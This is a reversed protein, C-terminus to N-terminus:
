GGGGTQLFIRATLTTECGEFETITIEYEVDIYSPPAVVDVVLDFTTPGTKVVAAPVPPNHDSHSFDYITIMTATLDAGPNFGTVVISEIHQYPPGDIVFDDVLIDEAALTCPPLPVETDPIGCCVGCTYKGVLYQTQFCEQAPEQMEDNGAVNELMAKFLSRTKGYHAISKNITLARIQALYLSTLRGLKESPEFDVISSPLVMYGLIIDDEPTRLRCDIVRYAAKRCNKDYVRLARDYDNPIPYIYEVPCVGETVGLTEDDARLRVYRRLETWSKLSAVSDLAGQYRTLEDAYEPDTESIACDGTEFRALNIVQIPLM